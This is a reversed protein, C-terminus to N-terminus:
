LFRLLFDKWEQNHQRDRDQKCADHGYNLELFAGKKGRHGQDYQENIEKNANVREVFWKVIGFKHLM